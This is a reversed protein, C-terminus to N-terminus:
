EATIDTFVRLDDFVFDEFAAAKRSVHVGLGYALEAAHNVLGLSKLDAVPDPLSDSVAPLSDGETATDIDLWHEEQM